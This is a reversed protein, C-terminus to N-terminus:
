FNNPKSATVEASCTNDSLKDQHGIVMGLVFVLITTIVKMGFYFFEDSM